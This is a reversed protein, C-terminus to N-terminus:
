WTNDSTAKSPSPMIVVQTYGLFTWPSSFDFYFTLKKSSNKEVPTQLLRHPSATANGLEQEVFFLRDAGFYLRENVWISFFFKNDLRITYLITYWNSLDKYIACICKYLVCFSHFLCVGSTASSVLTILSSPKLQFVWCLTWTWAFDFSIFFILDFFGQSM